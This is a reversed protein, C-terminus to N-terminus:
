TLLIGVIIVLVPVVFENFIAKRNRYYSCYRKYLVGILNQLFGTNLELKEDLQSEVDDVRKAETSEALAM